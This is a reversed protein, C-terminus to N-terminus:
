KILPITHIANDLDEKLVQYYENSMIKNKYTGKYCDKEELTSLEYEKCISFTM